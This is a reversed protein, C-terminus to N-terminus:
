SKEEKRQVTKMRIRYEEFVISIENKTTIKKEYGDLSTTLPCLTISTIEIHNLHNRMKEDSKLKKEIIM